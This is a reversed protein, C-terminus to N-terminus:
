RGAMEWGADFDDKSATKPPGSSRRRVATSAELQAQRRPDTEKSPPPGDGPVIGKAQKFQNLLDVAQAPSRYGEKGDYIAMLEQAEKFPQNEIWERLQGSNVHEAFDPHAREVATIYRDEDVDQATQQVQQVTPDIYDKRIQDVAGTMRDRVTEGAAKKSMVEMARYIDPYEKQLGDLLQKEEDSLEEEVRERAQRQEPTEEPRDRSSPEEGEQRRQEEKKLRGDWTKDEQQLRQLKAKKEAVEKEKQAIQADLDDDGERTSADEGPQDKAGAQAPEDEKEPEDGDPDTDDTAADTERDETEKTTEATEADAEGAWGADFAAEDEASHGGEDPPNQAATEEAEPAQGRPDKKGAM